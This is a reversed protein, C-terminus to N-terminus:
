TQKPFTLLSALLFIFILGTCIIPPLFTFVAMVIFCVGFVIVNIAVIGKLINEEAKRKLIYLNIWGGLILLLPMCASLSLYIDNMTPTFGGGLDMKYTDMLDLLQKETEDHAIPKNVFSLSHLFATLFQLIIAGKLWFTHKKLM